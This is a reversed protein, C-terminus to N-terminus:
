PRGGEILIVGLEAPPPHGWSAHQWWIRRLTRLPLGGAAAGHGIPQKKAATLSPEAAIRDDLRKSQDGHRAEGRGPPTRM